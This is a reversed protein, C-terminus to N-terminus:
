LFEYFIIKNNWISSLWSLKIASMIALPVFVIAVKV